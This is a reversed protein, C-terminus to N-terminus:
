VTEETEDPPSSARVGHLIFDEMANPGKEALGQTQMEKYWQALGHEMLEKPSKWVPGVHKVWLDIEARTVTRRKALISATNVLIKALEEDIAAGPVSWHAKGLCDTYFGIQKVQDLLFPHEGEKDFLPTFDNLRRAGKAFLDLFPWMVNKKTHSRYERWCEVVEKDDRAVALSRLIALKGSEEISLASLSAALPYDGHELLLSAADALRKANELAANMGEAIQGPDLKGKYQDLRKKSM